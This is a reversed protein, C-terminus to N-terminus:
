GDPGAAVTTVGAISTGGAALAGIVCSDASLPDNAGALASGAATGGKAPAAATAGM